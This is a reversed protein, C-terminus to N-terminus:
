HWNMAFLGSKTDEIQEKPVEKGESDLYMASVLGTLTGHDNHWGCWQMDEKKEIKLKEIPFYHLLRGTSKHSDRLIWELKGTEYKPEWKKVYIDLNKSVEIGIENIFRGLNKFAKEIGEVDSNPWINRYTLRSGDAKIM